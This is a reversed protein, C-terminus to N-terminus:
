RAVRARLIKQKDREARMRNADNEIGRLIAADFAMSSFVKCRYKTARATRESVRWAEMVALCASKDGDRQLLMWYHLGIAAQHPSGPNGKRRATGAFHCPDEGQRVRDLIEFVFQRATENLSEGDRVAFLLQYWEEIGPKM